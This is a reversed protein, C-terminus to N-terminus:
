LLPSSLAVGHLPFGIRVCGALQEEIDHLKEVVRESLEWLMISCDTMPVALCFM